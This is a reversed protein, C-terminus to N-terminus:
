PKRKTARRGARYGALFTYSLATVIAGSKVLGYTADYDKTRSWKLWAQHGKEREAPKMQVEKHDACVTPM